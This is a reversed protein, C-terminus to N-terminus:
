DWSAQPADLAALVHGPEIRDMGARPGGPPVIHRILRSHRLPGSAGFLGYAPRGLAARLNLMGSDNGVFLEAQDLLAMVEALPWGIAPRIARPLAAAAEIAYALPREHEAALLVVTGFGRGALANALAAFRPAPWLRETGHSGIGLVALPSSWRQTLLGLKERAAPSAKVRAEPLRSALGLSALYATAEDFVSPFRDNVPLRHTDTLFPRQARPGYGYRDPIAALAMAAALSASRHLLVCAQLRCARLDAVLRAFGPV